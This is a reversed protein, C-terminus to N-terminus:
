SQQCSTHACLTVKKWARSEHVQMRIAITTVEIQQLLERTRGGPVEPVFSDCAAFAYWSAVLLSVMWRSVHAAGCEPKKQKKQLWQEDNCPNTKLTTAEVMSTRM